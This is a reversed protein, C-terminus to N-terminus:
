VAPFIGEMGRQWLCGYQEGRGSAARYPDPFFVWMVFRMIDQLVPREMGENGYGPWLGTASAADDKRACCFIGCVCCSRRCIEKVFFLGLQERGPAGTIGPCAAAERDPVLFDGRSGAPESTVTYQVFGPSPLLLGAFAPEGFPVSPGKGGTKEWIEHEPYLILYLSGFQCLCLLHWICLLYHFVKALLSLLLSLPYLM